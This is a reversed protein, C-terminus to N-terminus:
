TLGVDGNASRGAPVSLRSWVKADLTAQFSHDIGHPRQQHLRRDHGHHGHDDLGHLDGDQQGQGAVDAVQGGAEVTGNSIPTRLM